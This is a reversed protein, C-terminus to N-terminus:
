EDGGSEGVVVEAEEVLNLAFGLWMPPGSRLPLHGTTRMGAQRSAGVFVLNAQRRGAGPLGAVQGETCDKCGVFCSVKPGNRPAGGSTVSIQLFLLIVWRDAPLRLFLGDETLWACSETFCSDHPPRASKVMEM